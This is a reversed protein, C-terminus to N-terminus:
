RSVPSGREPPPPIAAVLSNQLPDYHEGNAANLVEFVVYAHKKGPPRGDAGLGQGDYVVLHPKGDDGGALAYRLHPRLPSPVKAVAADLERRQNADLRVANPRGARAVPANAPGSPAAAAAPAAVAAQAPAVLATRAAAPGADKSACAALLAAAALATATLVTPRPARPNTPSVTETM